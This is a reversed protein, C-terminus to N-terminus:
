RSASGLGISIFDVQKGNRGFVLNSIVCPMDPEKLQHGIESNMRDLASAPKGLVVFAGTVGKM